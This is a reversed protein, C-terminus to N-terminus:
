MLAFHFFFHPFHLFLDMNHLGIPGIFYIIIIIIGRLAIFPYRFMFPFLIFTTIKELFAVLFVDIVVYM